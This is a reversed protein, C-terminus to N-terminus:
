ILIFACAVTDDAELGYRPQLFKEYLSTKGVRNRLIWLRNCINKSSM